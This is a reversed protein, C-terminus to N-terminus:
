GECDWNCIYVVLVVALLGVRQYWWVLKSVLFGWMGVLALTVLNFLCLYLLLKPIHTWPEPNTGLQWWGRWSVLRLEVWAGVRSSEIMRAKRWQQWGAKHRRQEPRASDGAVLGWHNLKNGKYHIKKQNNPNPFHSKSTSKLNGPKPTKIQGGSERSKKYFFNALSTGMLAM